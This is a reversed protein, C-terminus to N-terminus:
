PKLQLEGKERLEDELWRSVLGTYSTIGQKALEVKNKEYYEEVLDVVWKSLSVGRQGKKVM